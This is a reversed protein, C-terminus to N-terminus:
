FIDRKLIEYVGEAYVMNSKGVRLEKAPVVVVIYVGNDVCVRRLQALYFAKSLDYGVAYM